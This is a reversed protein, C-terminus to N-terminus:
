IGSRWGESPKGAVRKAPRTHHSRLPSPQDVVTEVSGAVSEPWSDEPVWDDKEKITTGSKTHQLYRAELERAAWDTVSICEQVADSGTVPGNPPYDIERLMAAVTEVSAGFQLAISVSRALTGMIGRLLTGQRSIDLFIEGPRGDTYEGVTLYVSQGGIYVHQTWNRRRAPLPERMLLAGM